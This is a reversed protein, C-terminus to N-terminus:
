GPTVAGSLGGPVADLLERTFPAAPSSLVDGTPGTEVLRGNRLVVLHDAASAVVALDHSILLYALGHLDRLRRLLSLIQAQTVVDLASVPEDLVILDPRPALARAIAVRQRQGGSLTGPRRTAYSEPLAVDTLLGLVRSRRQARGMGRARLPEAIIRGVSWLPDLSSYPNQAVFQVRGNGLAPPDGAVLVRGATPEALGTVMRAITSKGSGSEGVLGLAGAEGLAFSVGDVAVTEGYTKRLECAELLPETVPRASALPRPVSDILLRTYADQPNGFVQTAPGEEVIRGGSMVAVRDARDAAVGLDHTILLVSTGDAAMSRILDLVAKQVTTDLASTPEDAIVLAPRGALAMGLLVRQRYGGSLQHPHCALVRDPDPIGARALVTAPAASNGNLRLAEAVQARITMLPNLATGPDQPVYAIRRGRLRRWRRDTLRDVRAGDFTIEGRVHAAPPLLGVLAQALTSKGSGSEGVVAVVQGSHISLHADAVAPSRGYHVTLGRVTLLTM